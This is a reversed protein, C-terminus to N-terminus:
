ADEIECPAHTTVATQEEGVEARLHNEDFRGSAIGHPAFAREFVINHM